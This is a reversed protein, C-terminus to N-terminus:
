RRNKGVKDSRDRAQKKARRDFERMNKRIIKMGPTDDPYLERTAPRPKIVANSRAVSICFINEKIKTPQIVGPYANNSDDLQGPAEAFQQVRGPSQLSRQRTGGTSGLNPRPLSVRTKVPQSDFRCHIFQEYAKKVPLEGADVRNAEQLFEETDNLTVGSHVLREGKVEVYLKQVSALYRIVRVESDGPRRVIRKSM